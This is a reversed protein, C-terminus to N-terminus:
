VKGYGIQNLILSYRQNVHCWLIGTNNSWTTARQKCSLCILLRVKCFYIFFIKVKKLAHHKNIKQETKTQINGFFTFNTTHDKKEARGEKLMLIYHLIMCVLKQFFKCHALFPSQHFYNRFSIKKYNISFHKWPQITPFSGRTNNNHLNQFNEFSNIKVLLM